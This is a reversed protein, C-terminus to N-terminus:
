TLIQGTGQDTAKVEFQHVNYLYVSTGANTGSISMVMESLALAEDTDDWDTVALPMLKTDNGTFASGNWAQGDITYWAVTTSSISTQTQLGQTVTASSSSDLWDRREIKIQIAHAANPTAYRIEQAINRFPGVSAPWRKVETWSDSVTYTGYESTGVRLSENYLSRRVTLGDSAAQSLDGHNHPWVQRSEGAYATPGALLEYLYRMNKTLRQGIVDFISSSVSVQADKVNTYLIPSEDSM